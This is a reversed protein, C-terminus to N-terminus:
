GQAQGTEALAYRVAQQMSMARGEARAAEYAAEDLHDRVAAINREYEPRDGPQPVAGMADFIAESAGFLRTAREPQGKAGVAGALGALCSAALFRFEIKQALTLGEAFLAEARDHDGQHQAIFGLNHLMMNERRTDGIERCIVLCEDYVTKALAYDGRLRALEGLINLAQSIGARDDLARMMALGEETLAVGEEYADKGPVGIAQGGSFVLAWAINRQDGLERYISLAKGYLLKSQAQDHHAFAILGAARFVKARVVPPVKASVELARAAWRRGEQYHGQEYMFEGLAGMLRLGLEPSAGKELAWVLAAHLNDHETELRSIWVRQNRQHLEAEAREALVAYYSAHRRRLSEEEGSLSLKEWAYERVTELMLFRLDGDRGEKQLLLSKDSLSAIGDVADIPMNEGCVEEAAELTCGGSFVALRAFLAREGEALLDYSWDIAGRLTRQREPLDRSGGTLAGLRDELRELLAQPTFLKVRAAALEIALPLGDLRVCIEAVTQANDETLQFDPRTAQAREAFLVVAESQSQTLSPESSQLDPLALPLVPYEQEGYLRLVERSTALAKLQPATALLDSMLPAVELLHEFNDLVLLLQRGSLFSKLAETLPEGAVETVGLSGAIAGAVLSPDNISALAVFYIGDKFDGAVQSAVKLALRTKGTGGSGTLTLLRGNQLLEKVEAIERERGVFSTVPAPLNHIAATPTPAPALPVPQADFLGLKRGQAAAQTRSSVGLKSYIQKNYWKVTELTIVLEQAIERNSLGDAILRLIELERETLPDLVSQGSIVDMAGGSEHELV